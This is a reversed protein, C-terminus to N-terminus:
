KIELLHISLGFFVIVTVTMIIVLVSKLKKNHSFYIAFGLAINLICLLGNIIRLACIKEYILDLYYVSKLTVGPNLYETYDDIVNIVKSELKKVKGKVHYKNGSIVNDSWDKNARIVILTSGDESSAFYYYEKSTPIFNVTQKYECIMPSMNEGDIYGEYVEGSKQETFAKEFPEADQFFM